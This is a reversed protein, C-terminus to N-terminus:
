EPMAQMTFDTYGDVKGTSVILRYEVGPTLMAPKLGKVAPKMGRIGQGYWFARTPVSNSDSELNWVPIAQPNFNTGEMPVVKVRTLRYDGNLTFAVVLGPPNARRNPRFSAAIGIQRKEFWHGFFHVYLGGLVLLVM